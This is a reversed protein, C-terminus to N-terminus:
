IKERKGSAIARYIAEIIKMDRLGEEGNVSSERNEQVCAAFDELQMAQHNVIPLNLDGNRTKGKLPGYEYAPRLELWGNEASIFLHEVNSDYPTNSYSVAGSPFEM